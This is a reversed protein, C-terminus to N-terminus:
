ISVGHSRDNHSLWVYARHLVNHTISLLFNWTNAYDYCSVFRRITCYSLSAMVSTRSCSVSGSSSLVAQKRWFRCAQVVFVLLKNCTINSQFMGSLCSAPVKVACVYDQRVATVRFRTSWKVFVLWSVCDALYSTECSTTAAARRTYADMFVAAFCYTRQICSCFGCQKVIM